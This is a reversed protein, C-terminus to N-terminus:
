MVVGAQYPNPKTQRQRMFDFFFGCCTNSAPWIDFEDSGGEPTTQAITYSPDKLKGMCCEPLPEPAATLSRRGTRPIPVIDPKHGGIDSADKADFDQLMIGHSRHVSGAGRLDNVYGDYNDFDSHFMSPCTPNRAISVPLLSSANQVATAIATEIELLFSYNECHGLRNMLKILEASRFLHRLSMGLIIHKPLKWHGNTVTRCLDQGLSCVLRDVKTSNVNMFLARLLKELQEPIVVGKDVL